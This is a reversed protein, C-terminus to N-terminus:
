DPFVSIGLGIQFNEPSNSVLASGCFPSRVARMVNCRFERCVQATCYESFGLKTGRARNKYGSVFFRGRFPAKM